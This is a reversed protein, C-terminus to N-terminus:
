EKLGTSTIRLSIKWWVQGFIVEFTHLTSKVLKDSPEEMTHTSLFNVFAESRDIM